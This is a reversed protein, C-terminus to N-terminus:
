RAPLGCGPLIFVQWKDQGFYSFVQQYEVIIKIILNSATFGKIARQDTLRHPKEGGPKSESPPLALCNPGFITM